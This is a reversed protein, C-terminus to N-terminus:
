RQSVWKFRRGHDIDNNTEMRIQDARSLQTCSPRGAPTSTRLIILLHYGNVPLERLTVKDPLHQTELM